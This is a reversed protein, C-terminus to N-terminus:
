GAYLARPRCLCLPRGTGHAFKRGGAALESYRFNGEQRIELVGGGPAFHAVVSDSTSVKDPQGPVISTVKASPEGRVRDLHNQEDFEARMRAATVVTHEGPVSPKVPTITVQAPGQSQAYAILRGERLYMDAAQSTIEIRQQQQKGNRALAAQQCRDAHAAERQVIMRATRRRSDVAVRGATTTAANPWASEMGGRRQFRSDTVQNKAGLMMEAYPSRLRTGNPGHAPLQVNGTAVARQVDNEPTLLLELRDSQFDRDPQHIRADSCTSRARNRTLPGM